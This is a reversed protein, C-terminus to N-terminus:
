HVWLIFRSRMAIATHLWEVRPGRRKSHREDLQVGEVQLERTVQDHPTQAREAAVQQFRHVPKIDVGCIDATRADCVGWRQCKLLQEVREAPLKSAEMLTGRRESFEHGCPTCRLREIAKGKGTWSRHV